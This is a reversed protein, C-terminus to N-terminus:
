EEVEQPKMEQLIMSNFEDETPMKDMVRCEFAVKYAIPLLTNQVYGQLYNELKERGRDMLGKRKKKAKM